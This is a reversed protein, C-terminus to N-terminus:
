KTITRIFYDTLVKATKRSTAFYVLSGKGLDLINWDVSSTTVGATYNAYRAQMNQKNVAFNYETSVAPKTGDVFLYSMKTMLEKEKQIISDKVLKEDMTGTLEFIVAIRIDGSDEIAFLKCSDKLATQDFFVTMHLAELLGRSSLPKEITAMPSIFIGNQLDITSRRKKLDAIFKALDDNFTGTSTILMETKVTTQTPEKKTDKKVPTTVKNTAQKVEKAPQKEKQTKPSVVDKNMYFYYGGYSIGALLAIFLIILLFSSMGGKNKTPTIETSKTELKDKNDINGDITQHLFASDEKKFVGAMPTDAASPFSGQGIKSKDASGPEGIPLDGGNFPSKFPQQNDTSNAMPQSEMIPQINDNSPTINDQKATPIPNIKNYEIMSPKGSEGKLNGEMTEINIEAQNKQQKNKSGFM